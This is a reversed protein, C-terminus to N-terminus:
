VLLTLEFLFIEEEAYSSSIEEITNMEEATYNCYNKMVNSVRILREQSINTLAPHKLMIISASCWKESSLSQIVHSDLDLQLSVDEDKNEIDTWPHLKVDTILDGVLESLKLVFTSVIRNSLLTTGPEDDWVEGSLLSLMVECLRWSGNLAFFHYIAKRNGRLLSGLAYIQKQRKKYLASYSYDSTPTTTLDDLLLSILTISTQEEKSVSNLLLESFDELAWSHFEEVNKVATGITWSARAQINWVKERLHKLEAQENQILQYTENKEDLIKALDKMNMHTSEVLLSALLPLGGLTHFDRAMDLDYLYYELDELVSLIDNPIEQKVNFDSKDINGHINNSEHLALYWKLFNIIDQLIDTTEVLYEEEMRKLQEQRENWIKRLENKFKTIEEPSSKEVDPLAPIGGMRSKEDQPLSSLTRHIMIYDEEQKTSDNKFDDLSAISAFKESQKQNLLSNTIKASMEPSLATNTLQTIKTKSAKSEPIPLDHEVELEKSLEYSSSSSPLASSSLNQEENEEDSLLKAYKLGTTMDIKVHLGAPITDGENVIQWENTAEIERSLCKRCCFITCLFYTILFFINNRKFQFSKPIYGIKM